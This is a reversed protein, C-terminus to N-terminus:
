AIVTSNLLPRAVKEAEGEDGDADRGPASGNAEVGAARARLCKGTNGQELPGETHALTWLLDRQSLRGM